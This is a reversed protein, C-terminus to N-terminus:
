LNCEMFATRCLGDRSLVAGVAQDMGDLLKTELAFGDGGMAVRMEVVLWVDSLM